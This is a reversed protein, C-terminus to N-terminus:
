TYASKRIINVDVPRHVRPIPGNIVSAHRNEKSASVANFLMNVDCHIRGDQYWYVEDSNSFVYRTSCGLMYSNIISVGKDNVPFINYKTDWMLAMCTHPSLPFYVNVTKTLWGYGMYKPRQRDTDILVVPNDSTIFRAKGTSILLVPTMHSVINAIQPLLKFLLSVYTNQHVVIQMRLPDEVLQRMEEYPLTVKTGTKEEYSKRLNDYAEPSSFNYYNVLDVLYQTLELYQVRLRPVRLHMGAIFESVLNWDGKVPLRMTKIWSDVVPKVQGEVQSFYGEVVNEDVIGEGEGSYFDRIHAVNQPSTRFTNQKVIDVVFVEQKSAFRYLYSVPVYHQKRAKGM